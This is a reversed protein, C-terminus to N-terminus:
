VEHGGALVEERLELLLYRSELLGFGRLSQM